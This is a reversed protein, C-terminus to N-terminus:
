ERVFDNPGPEPEYVFLRCNPDSDEDEQEGESNGEVDSERASMFHEQLIVVVLLGHKHEILRSPHM